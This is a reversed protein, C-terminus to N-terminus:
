ETRKGNSVRRLIDNEVTGINTKVVAHHHRDARAVPSVPLGEPWGILMVKSPALIQTAL